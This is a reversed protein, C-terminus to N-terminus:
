GHKKVKQSKVSGRTLSSTNQSSSLKQTTRVLCNWFMTMLRLAERRLRNLHLKQTSVKLVSQLKSGPLLTSYQLKRRLNNALRKRGASKRSQRSPKKSDIRLSLADLKSRTSWRMPQRKM